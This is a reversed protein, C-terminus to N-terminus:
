IIEGPLVLNLVHTFCALLIKNRFLLAIRMKQLQLVLQRM